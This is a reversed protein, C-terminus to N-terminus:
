LSAKIKDLIDQSMQQDGFTGIRIALNTLNDGAKTVVIEIRDGKANHTVLTDSLADQREEPQAFQLQVIVKNSAVVVSEYGNGLTVELKGDVYAVSGAAGAAVAGVVFLFCGSSCLLNAALLVAALGRYLSFSKKM